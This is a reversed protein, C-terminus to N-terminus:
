DAYKVSCGYPKTEAQSIRRGAALDALAADVFNRGAGPAGGGRPQNDIAGRYVLVGDKDIVYMHPTTKADYAKGVAGDEDILVPHSMSWEAVAAANAEVGHGQKGPAGSNIAVWAVGEAAVRSAQDALPGDRHAYQM